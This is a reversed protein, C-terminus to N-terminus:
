AKGFEEFLIGEKMAYGSVSVQQIDALKILHEILIMAVVIMTARSDPITPDEFREALTTPLIRNTFEHIDSVNLENYTLFTRMPVYINELVDFTGSAGILHQTPFQQLAKILPQLQENLFDAIANQEQVGIPEQHHFNNKLVAVGIPFSQAWYIKSADCIIFEVSGGGIDMIMCPLDLHPYAKRVGECILAAERDGSIIQIQIGTKQFVTEAFVPANKATRLAATGFAVCKSIAWNDQSEKFFILADLGRRFAKEGINEIGDEALMIYRRDQHLINLTGDPEMEAIIQNFTNTGLDIVAIRSSM